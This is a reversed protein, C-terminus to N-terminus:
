QSYLSTIIIILQITNIDLLPVVIPLILILLGAVPCPLKYLIIVIHNYLGKTLSVDLQHDMIRTHLIITNDTQIVTYNLDVFYKSMIISWLSIIIKLLLTESVLVAM